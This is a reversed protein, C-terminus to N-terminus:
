KFPWKLGTDKEFGKVANDLKARSKYTTPHDLGYHRASEIYSKEGGLARAFSEVERQNGRVSVPISIDGFMSKLIREIWGGFMALFSENLQGSKKVNLNIVRPSLKNM